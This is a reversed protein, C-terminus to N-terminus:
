KLRALYRLDRRNLQELIGIPREDFRERLEREGGALSEIRYAPSASPQASAHAALVLAACLVRVM